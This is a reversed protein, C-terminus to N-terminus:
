IKVPANIPKTLVKTLIWVIYKFDTTKNHTFLIEILDIVFVKLIERKWIAKGVGQKEAIIAGPYILSSFKTDRAQGPVSDPWNQLLLPIYSIIFCPLPPFRGKGGLLPSTPTELKTYGLCCVRTSGEQMTGVDSRELTREKNGNMGKRAFTKVQVM